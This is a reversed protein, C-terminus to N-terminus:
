LCSSTQTYSEGMMYATHPMCSSLVTIAGLTLIDADFDSNSVSDIKKLFSPLHERIDQSFTPLIENTAIDATEVYDAIDANNTNASKFTQEEKKDASIRHASIASTASKASKTVLSIGSEKAKQFFSKITIGSGHSRLCRDYQGDCDQQNYDPNFRSVRHFIERGNEGLEDSLAFGIDRWNDYGATIDVQASEIRQTIQEIDDINDSDPAYQKNSPAVEQSLWEEPNFIEKM